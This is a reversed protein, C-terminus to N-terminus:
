VLMTFSCLIRTCRDRAISNVDAQTEVSATVVFETAVVDLTAAAGVIAVVGEPSTSKDGPTHVTVPSNFVARRNCVAVQSSSPETRTTPPPEPKRPEASAEASRNSGSVPDQVPVPSNTSARMRWVAVNSCSPVTSTTPPTSSLPLDSLEASSYSGLVPDHVVVPLIPAPLASGVAVSNVSPVTSTTPPTASAEASNYSGTLPVQVRGSIHGGTVGPM